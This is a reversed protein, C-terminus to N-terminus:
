RWRRTIPPTCAAPIRTSRSRCSRPTPPDCSRWARPVRPHHAAAPVEGRTGRASGRCDLAPRHPDEPAGAPGAQTFLIEQLQKPSDLNFPQGRDPACRGRTRGPAKRTRREAQAATRSGGARRPAGNRAAGPRPAARNGRVGEPPGAGERAGCAARPPAAAHRRRGRRRIRLSTRASGPQLHDAERGQRRRGRVQHHRRRPLAERLFGHRPPDRDLEARLVRADLRPAHRRPQHRPEAARARRVEPSPRGEPPRRIRAAAEAERPDEQPRAPGARRPLRARAPPVGRPGARHLLVHRRNRGAHLRPQDNRHRLRLAASERAERDLCDLENATPITEYSRAPVAPRSVPESAGGSSVRESAPDRGASAQTATGTLQRLLSNMELRQYLATLAEVNPPRRALEAPKLPLEVDCRITALKRSLELTELNDRLSEGVKGPIDTAHKIIEDLSGYENLWKAATKPGVKPVGPINDSSDGVLALYDVIQEPLVDFKLKVGARDLTTEFM